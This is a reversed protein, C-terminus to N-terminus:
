GERQRARRNRGYSAPNVSEKVAVGKSRVSGRHTREAARATIGEVPPSEDGGANLEEDQNAGAYEKELGEDAQGDIREGGVVIHDLDEPENRGRDGVAEADPLRKRIHKQVAAQEM